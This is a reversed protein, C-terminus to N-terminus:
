DDGENSMADRELGAATIAVAAEDEWIYEREEEGGVM